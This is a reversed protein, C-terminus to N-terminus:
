FFVLLHSSLVVGEILLIKREKKKVIRTQPNLTTYRTACPFTSIITSYKVIVM